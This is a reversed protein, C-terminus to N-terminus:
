PTDKSRRAKVSRMIRQLFEKAPRRLIAKNKEEWTMCLPPSFIREESKHWKRLTM